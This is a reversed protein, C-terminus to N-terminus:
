GYRHLGAGHAKLWGCPGAVEATLAGVLAWFRRGHDLHVLHAVEHAVVYDLVPEPALILRWSFSLAGDATCSGWRSRTDRLSLRAISRELRAAKAHARPAIERRAERKLYDQVRRGLHEAQGSVRIEGTTRWVGRRAEPAHVIVHEAGLLPLRAGAAFPVPPPLEALHALVWRRKEGVFRLGEALSVGAPLSLRLAGSAPDLSLTLRRGRRSRRPCVTVARGDLRLIQPKIERGEM